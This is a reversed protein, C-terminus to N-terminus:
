LPTIVFAATTAPIPYREKSPSLRGKYSSFVPMCGDRQEPLLNFHLVHTTIFKRFEDSVPSQPDRGEESM